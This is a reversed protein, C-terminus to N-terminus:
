RRRRRRPPRLSNNAKPNQTSTSHRKTQPLSPPHQRRGPPDHDAKYTQLIRMPIVNQNHLTQVVNEAGERSEFEVETIVKPREAILQCRLIPGGIPVIATEIDAITTGLSLNKIVVLYPGALGRISLSPAPKASGIINFQSNLAPSSASGNVASYLLDKRNPRSARPGRPAGSPSSNNLSHLDHTWEADVNGAPPRANSRPQPKFTNKM